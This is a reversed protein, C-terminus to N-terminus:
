KVQLDAFQSFTNNNEEIENCTTFLVKTYDDFQNFFSEFLTQNEKTFNGYFKKVIYKCEEQEFTQSLKQSQKSTIQELVM